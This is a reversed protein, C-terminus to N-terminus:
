IMQLPRVIRIGPVSVRQAGRNFPVKELNVTVSTEQHNRVVRFVVPGEQKKSLQSRLDSVSNVKGDDVAIIVDGAKLGGKAAASGETVESILVGRGEKVGFFGALQDTVPEASIGLRLPAVFFGQSYFNPEIITPPTFDRWQEAMREADARYNRALDQYRKALGLDDRKTVTANFSHRNGGRLVEIAVTRGAPTDGLLREFERVSDVPRGNFSIIVDNEKLGAKEAPSDNIVKMVIAGREQTLGLDKMRDATVEELFVGLYSGDLNFQIVPGTLASDASTAAKPQKEQATQAVQASATVGVFILVLPSFLWFRYM